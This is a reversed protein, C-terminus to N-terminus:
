ALSDQFLDETSPLCILSCRQVQRVTTLTAVTRIAKIKDTDTQIETASFKLDLTSRGQSRFNM